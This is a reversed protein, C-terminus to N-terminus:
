FATTGNPTGNGTPGDYGATATCLYSGGCTGNSGSTVDYLAGTHAYASEATASQANGALAYVSAIVPASVSTGGFVLWGSVNQCKFSDYVAVGTSPDAVAAVDAVSRRGCGADTQWSPKSVYASCGSGAGSWATESWGRSNSARSLSTGGVATVTNYAAPVQVGYGADGSSATIVAGPHDYFGASSLETSSEAGGYSNSIATAGQAFAQNVAAGLNAFSNSSAEVLLIKCQPCIASAMDLDLSIEQAWGCNARPYKTGGNQDIKRFCGNATTCPPLGFQSRYLNMDSEANPDDFADVIAITQFNWAWTSGTALTGLNYASYLDAPGYGRPTATAAPTGGADVVVLSHCRADGPASPGPCVPIARVRDQAVPNAVPALQLPSTVGAQDGGAQSADGPAGCAVALVLLTVAAIKTSRM